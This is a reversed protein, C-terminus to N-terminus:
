TTAEFGTLLLSFTSCGMVAVVAVVAVVTWGRISERSSYM